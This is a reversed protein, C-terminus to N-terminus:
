AGYRAAERSATAVSSYYFMLRGMEIIGFLILLLVPIALAFEVMGQGRKAPTLCHGQHPKGRIQDIFSLFSISQMTLERM